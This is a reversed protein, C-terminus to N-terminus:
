GADETRSEHIPLTVTVTTGNDPRSDVSARGDLTAAREAIGQLGRGGRDDPRSVDFGAGDDAVALVVEAPTYSLRLTAKSAKAHRAINTLAEQATRLLAIEAAPPLPVVDGTVALDAPIGTEDSWRRGTRRIAEALTAGELAEPRLAHVARRVERLSDRASRRARDLHERARGPDADLAQESAELQMVIGTFGQAVTDHIERALREREELIGAHRSTVALQARTAALADLAQQRAEIQRVLATIFAGILVALLVSGGVSLLAAGTLDTPTLMGTRWFVLVTLAVAAPLSYRYRNLLGFVQPYLGYVLFTFSSHRDLLVWTFALVGAFWLLMQPRGEWEPHRVAAQWHWLAFAAALGLTIAGHTAGPAEALAWVTPAALTLAFFGNWVLAWRRESCEAAAAAQDERGVTM